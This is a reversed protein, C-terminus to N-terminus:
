PCRTEGPQSWYGAFVKKKDSPSDQKQDVRCCYQQVDQGEHTCWKLNSDNNAEKDVGLGIHACMRNPKSCKGFSLDIQRDAGVTVIAKSSTNNLERYPITHRVGFAVGINQNGAITFKGPNTSALKEANEKVQDLNNFLLCSVGDYHTDQSHFGKSLLDAIEFPYSVSSSVAHFFGHIYLQSCEYTNNTFFLQHDILKANEYYDCAFIKTAQKRWKKCASQAITIDKKTESANTVCVCCTNMKKLESANPQEAKAHDICLFLLILVLHNFLFNKM